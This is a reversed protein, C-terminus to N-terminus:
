YTQCFIEDHTPCNYLLRQRFVSVDPRSSFYLLHTPCQCDSSGFGALPIRANPLELLCHAWDHERRQRDCTYWAEALECQKRLYDIHWYPRISIRRHHALRSQLGGPGFASGAYVYFGPQLTMDGHRGIQISAHHDSQLILAYSGPQKDTHPM